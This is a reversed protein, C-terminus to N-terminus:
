RHAGPMTRPACAQFFLRRGVVEGAALAAVAASTFAIPLTGDDGSVSALTLGGAGAALCALRLRRTNALVGNLLSATRQLDPDTSATVRQHRRQDWVLLAVIAIGAVAGTARAGVTSSAVLAAWSLAGVAVTTAFHPGTETSTWWRRGTAAYIMVSCLVTLAGLGAAVVAIAAAAVTQGLMHALAAVAGAGIFGSLALVERSLWSHRWGLVARWAKLPQGLHALSAAASAAAVAAASSLGVLLRDSVLALDVVLAAAAIGVAWQSLVLMAVLPMHGHQPTVPLPDTAAEVDADNLRGRYTTTPRSIASTAAGAVLSPPTDTVGASTSVTTVTIASTPCGQVCAPAEGDALRDACLDCKRVIGLRDNYVPVDYPCTLTCYQCGICADDLHRVIGSSPDKEYAEAPCGNLCGPDRCHHCATTITQEAPGRGPQAPSLLMGISRFSEGEDLGNLSHCATVCAKCGTCRDLDVEFAYQRGPAPASLPILDSWKGTRGAVDARSFRDVASLDAQAALFWDIPTADVPPGTLDAAAM